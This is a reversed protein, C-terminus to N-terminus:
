KKSDKSNDSKESLLLDFLADYAAELRHEAIKREEETQPPVYVVEIKKDKKMLRSLRVPKARYPNISAGGAM